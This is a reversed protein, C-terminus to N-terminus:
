GDTTAQLKGNTSTCTQDGNTYDDKVEIGALETVDYSDEGHGGRRLLRELRPCQFAVTEHTVSAPGSPPLKLQRKLLAILM